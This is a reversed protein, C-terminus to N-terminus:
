LHKRRLPTLSATTGPSKLMAHQSSFQGRSYNM